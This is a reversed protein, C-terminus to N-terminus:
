QNLILKLYKKIKNLKYNNKNSKIAEEVHDYYRDGKGKGVYFPEYDFCDKGGNYSYKGPKRSDLYIYTYFRKDEILLIENNIDTM